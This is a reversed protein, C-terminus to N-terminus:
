SLLSLLNLLHPDLLASRLSQNRFTSPGAPLFAGHSPWSCLPGCSTRNYKLIELYQYLLPVVIQGINLCRELYTVSQAKHAKQAQCYGVIDGVALAPIENFPRSSFGCLKALFVEIGTQCLLVVLRMVTIFVM